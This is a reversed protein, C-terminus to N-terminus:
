HLLPVRRIGSVRLLRFHVDGSVVKRTPLLKVLLIPLSAGTPQLDPELVPLRQEPGLEVAPRRHGDVPRADATRSGGLPRAIWHAPGSGCQPRASARTHPFRASALRGLAQRELSSRVDFFPRGRVRGSSPASHSTMSRRQCARSNGCGRPLCPGRRRRRGGPPLAALSKRFAQTLATIAAPNKLATGTSASVTALTGVFNNWSRRRDATRLMTRAPTGWRNRHGYAAVPRLGHEAAVVDRAFRILPLGEPPGLGVHGGLRRRPGDHHGHAALAAGSGM